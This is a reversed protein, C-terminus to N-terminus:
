HEQTGRRTEGGKGGGLRTPYWYKDIRAQEMDVLINKDDIRKNDARRYALEASKADAFEIFAYGKSKQSHIDRVIRLHKITGYHGFNDELKQEDTKYSLRGVFITKRPDGSINKDSSPNYSKRLKKQESLHSIVKQRRREELSLKKNLKSDTDIDEFRELVQSTEDVLPQYGKIRYNKPTVGNPPEVYDLPPRARFFSSFYTPVGANKDIIPFGNMSTNQFTQQRMEGGNPKEFRRENPHERPPFRDNRDNREYRDFNRPNNPPPGYHGRRDGEMQNQTDKTINSRRYSM